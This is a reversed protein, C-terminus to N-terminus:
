ANSFLQANVLSVITPISLSWFSVTGHRCGSRRNWIFEPMQASQAHTYTSKRPHTEGQYDTEADGQVEM